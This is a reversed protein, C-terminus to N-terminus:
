AGESARILGSLAETYQSVTQQVDARSDIYRHSRASAAHWEEAEGALKAVAACLGEVDSVVIGLGQSGILQQPDIFAVVPTGRSWAQLYTNPFGEIESTSVLMRAREIYDAIRHQPVFGHFTVNPLAAARRRVQEFFAETGPLPGGILHFSLRPLQAAAELLLEPRKLPRLNGIWLAAIDRAELPPRRGAAEFLPDIVASSVGFNRALAQQQASSQALVLDARALGWAYLKRDRWYDVLLARPDCDSDSAVRFAVKRGRGRAFLVVQALHGGACSTYYIDADARRMAAHLGTWRPHVFRIVPIGAKPRYAKYTKVGDWVAGDPQGHDAVIMSVPWGRRVLARALLTQQLEAGGARRDSYERALVPLNGLGVFCVRGPATSPGTSASTARLLRTTM